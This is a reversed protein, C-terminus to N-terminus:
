TFKHNSSHRSQFFKWANKIEVFLFFSGGLFFLLAAVFLSAQLESLRAAEYFRVISFLSFSVSVLVICYNFVIFKKTGNIEHFLKEIEQDLTELEDPATKGQNRGQDLTKQKEDLKSM